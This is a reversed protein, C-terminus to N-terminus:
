KDGSLVPQPQYDFIRATLDTPFSRVTSNFLRAAQVYRNRASAIHDETEVLQARLDLFNDDSQLQPYVAGLGMLRQLSVTLREQVALYTAFAAPDNLVTAAPMSGSRASSEAAGILEQESAAVAKVTAALSSILDARRQYLSVVQSRSAKVAEDQQQLSNYGCGSLGLVVFLTLAASPFNTM